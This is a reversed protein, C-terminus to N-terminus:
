FFSGGYLLAEACIQDVSHFLHQRVLAALDGQLLHPRLRDIDLRNALSHLHRLRLKRSSIADAFSCQLLPLLPPSLGIRRRPRIQHHDRLFRHHHPFSVTGLCLYCFTGSVHTVSKRRSPPPSPIGHFSLETISSRMRKTIRSLSPSVIAERQRSNPM